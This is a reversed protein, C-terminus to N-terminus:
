THESRRAVIRHITKGSSASVAEEDLLLTANALAGHVLAADFATYLRGHADRQDIGETVRWSLYLVGAPKLLSVLRRVAPVIEERPLHMIVTECLVNDFAGDPLGALQPLLAIRFALGPYRRRAEEILTESADYGEADFGSAALWAVERGSGCGIDATRGPRFFRKVIAHLDAPAPQAHWEEAFAAAGKEYASLTQPDVRPRIADPAPKSKM